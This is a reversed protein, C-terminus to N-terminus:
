KLDIDSQRQMELQTSSRVKFNYNESYAKSFCYAFLSNLLFQISEETSFSGIKTYLRERSSITLYVNSHNKVYNGGQSTLGIIPVKNERLASIYRMPIREPNNGSYSIIMACDEKTLSNAIMGGEDSNSLYVLIKISEMKRKFLEGLYINPSMAFIVIRKASILLDGAKEIKTYNLQEKTDKLSEMQVMCIKEIMEDTKDNELFPLNPDVDGMHKEIYRCEDLFDSFFELWGSYGIRQAFRTLTAKSTFTKQAIEQMSMGKVNLKERILFEAINKGSDNYKLMTEDIRQFIYMGVEGDVQKKSGM